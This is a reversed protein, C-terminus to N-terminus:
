PKRLQDNFNNVEALTAAMKFANGSVSFGMSKLAESAAKVDDETIPDDKGFHGQRQYEDHIAKATM